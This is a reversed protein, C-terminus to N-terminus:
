TTANLDTWVGFQKLHRIVFMCILESASSDYVYTFTSNDVSTFSTQQSPRFKDFYQQRENTENLQLERQCFLISAARLVAASDLTQSQQTGNEFM